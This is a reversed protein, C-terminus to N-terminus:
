GQGEGQFVCRGFIYLNLQWNYLIQGENEHKTISSTLTFSMSLPTFFLVLNLNLNLNVLPQTNFLRGLLDGVLRNICVLKCLPRMM